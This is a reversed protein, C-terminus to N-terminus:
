NPAVARSMSSRRRRARLVAAPVVEYRRGRRTRAAWPHARTARTARHGAACAARAHPAGQQLYREAVDGYVALMRARVAAADPAWERSRDLVDALAALQGLVGPRM